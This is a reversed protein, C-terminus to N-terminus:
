RRSKNLRKQRKIEHDKRNERENFSKILSNVEPYTLANINFLTYGLDHLFLIM